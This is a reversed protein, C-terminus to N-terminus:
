LNGLHNQYLWVRLIVSSTNNADIEVKGVVKSKSNLNFCQVDLAGESCSLERTLVTLM